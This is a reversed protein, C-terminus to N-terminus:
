NFTRRKIMEFQKTSGSSVYLSPWTYKELWLYFGIGNASIDITRGYRRWVGTITYAAPSNREEVVIDVKGDPTFWLELIERNGVMFGNEMQWMGYLIDTHFIDRSESLRVQNNQETYRQSFECDAKECSSLLIGTLAIIILLKYM